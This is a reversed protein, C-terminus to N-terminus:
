FRQDTLLYAHIQGEWFKHGEWFNSRIAGRVLSASSKPFTEQSKMRRNQPRRRNKRDQPKRNQPEASHQPFIVCHFIKGTLCKNKRKRWATQPQPEAAVHPGQPM